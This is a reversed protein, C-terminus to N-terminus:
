HETSCFLIRVCPALQTSPGVALVPVYDLHSDIQRVEPVNILLRRIDGGAVAELYECVADLHWNWRLSTDPEILPWAQNVFEALSDAALSRDIAELSLNLAM